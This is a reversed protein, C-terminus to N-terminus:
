HTARELLCNLNKHFGGRNPLFVVTMANGFVNHKTLHRGHASAGKIHGKVDIHKLIHDDVV